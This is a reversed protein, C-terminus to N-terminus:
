YRRLSHAERTPRTEGAPVQASPAPHYFARAAIPGSKQHLNGHAPMAFEVVERAKSIVRLRRFDNGESVRTL